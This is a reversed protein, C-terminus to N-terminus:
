RYLLQSVPFNIQPQVPDPAPEDDEDDEQFFHNKLEAISDLIAAWHASSVYTTSSDRFRITGHDSASPSVGSQAEARPSKSSPQQGSNQEPPLPNRAAAQPADDATASLGAGM